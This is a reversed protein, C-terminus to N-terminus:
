KKPKSTTKQEEIWLVVIEGIIEYLDFTQFQDLWEDVTDPQTDDAYKSMAYAVDEFLSLDDSVEKDTIEEGRNQRAFFSTIKSFDIFLDRGFWERYRRPLGASTKFMVEKDGIM